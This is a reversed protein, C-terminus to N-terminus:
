ASGRPEVRNVLAALGPCDLAVTGHPCCEGGTARWRPCEFTRPPAELELMAADYHSIRPEDRLRRLADRGAIAAMAAFGALGVGAVCGCVFAITTAASM